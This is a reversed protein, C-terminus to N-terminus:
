DINSTCTVVIIFSFKEAPRTQCQTMGHIPPLRSILQRILSLRLASSRKLLDSWSIREMEVLM